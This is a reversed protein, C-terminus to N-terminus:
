AQCRKGRRTKTVEHNLKGARMRAFHGAPLGEKNELNGKALESWAYRVAKPEAVGSASVVVTKGDTGIEAAATVFNGDGGAIEFEGLAKGDRSKLGSGTQDFALVAKGDKFTADHFVPGGYVLEKRGYSTALAWDAVRSGWM